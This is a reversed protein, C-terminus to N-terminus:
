SEIKDPFVELWEAFGQDLNFVHNNDFGGNRMLTCARISRRGSRCYVLIIKDLDLQTVQDWFDDELYNINIAGKIHGQQFENNTRVDLIIAQKSLNIKELFANPTLNNLQSKLIRWRPTKCSKDEM